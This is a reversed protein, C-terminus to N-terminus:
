ARYIVGEGMIISLTLPTSQFTTVMVSGFRPDYMALARLTVYGIGAVLGFLLFSQGYLFVLMSTMVLLILYMFPLGM